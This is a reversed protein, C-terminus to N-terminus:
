ELRLGRKYTGDALDDWVQYDARFNEYAEYVRKFEPNVMAEEDFTKKTLRKLTLLVDDPFPLIEINQKAQLEKLAAQNHFEMQAYIWESTAAAAVETLKQLDTPLTKWKNTNIM